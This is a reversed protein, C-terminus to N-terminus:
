LTYFRVEIMDPFDRLLMEGDHKWGSIGTITTLEVSTPGGDRQPSICLLLDLLQENSALTPRAYCPDIEGITGDALSVTGLFVCPKADPVACSVSLNAKCLQKRKEEESAGSLLEACLTPSLGMARVPPEGESVLVCFTEVKTGPACDQETHRDTVLVPMFDAMCERYALCLNVKHVGTPSLQSAPRGCEDTLTWPDFCYEKPVIIDCGSAGEIAVGPTVCLKGDQPKVDLGCLVGEGLGLRNLLWRKRNFYSQEMELHGVDLLKGYFYNNRRPEALTGLRRGNDSYDM